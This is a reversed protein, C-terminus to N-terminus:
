GTKLTPAAGFQWWGRPAPAARQKGTTASIRALLDEKPMPKAFLFGQGIGVGLGQLKHSEHATEIGEGVTKLGFRRALAIISELLGEKVRDRHCDTVYARDIKLESFPLQRLRALSSYGAGFDDIALSCSEATLEAAVENAITLDNVIQDETVELILGPWEAAKPRAERIIRAIPLVAFASAPVNVALGLGPMGLAACEEWDRLAGVIVRETLALLDAEPAGPLFAGPGLVGLEPHRLRILAEAGIWNGTQLSVKPQYWAELWDRELARALTVQPKGSADREDDATAAVAAPAFMGKLPNQM